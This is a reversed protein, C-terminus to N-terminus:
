VVPNIKKACLEPVEFNLHHVTVPLTESENVALDSYPSNYGQSCSKFISSRSKVRTRIENSM